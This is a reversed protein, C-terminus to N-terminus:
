LRQALYTNKLSFLKNTAHMKLAGVGNLSALLELTSPVCHTYRSDQKSVGRQRM